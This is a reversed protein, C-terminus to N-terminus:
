STASGAWIDNGIRITLNGASERPVYVYATESM